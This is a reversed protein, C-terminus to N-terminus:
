NKLKLLMYICMIPLGLLKISRIETKSISERKMRQMKKLLEIAEEKKGERVYLKVLVYANQIYNQASLEAFDPYEAKAKEYNYELTVLVDKYRSAKIGHSAGGTRQLYYYYKKDLLYVKRAKEIVEFMAYTDESNALKKFRVDEWLEKRYLKGWIIQMYLKSEYYHRICVEKSVKGFIEPYSFVDYQCGPEEVIEFDCNVIDIDEQMYGYLESLCNEDLWDDADIFFLYEGKMMDLGLNRASSVGGNEKHVVRIRQDKEKWQDCIKASADSSGDDILIIEIDRYTQKTLSEICRDLYKEVNYVPVVISIM